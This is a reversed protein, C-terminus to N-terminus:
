VVVEFCGHSRRLDEGLGQRRDGRDFKLFDGKLAGIEFIAFGSKEPGNGILRFLTLFNANEEVTDFVEGGHGFKGVVREDRERVDLFEELLGITIGRNGDIQLLIPLDLNFLLEVNM